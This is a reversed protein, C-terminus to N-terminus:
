TNMLKRQFVAPNGAWIENDPIDRTVVSGAGVISHCGITVGKLVISRAGLFAGEKILVPATKIYAEQNDLLRLDYDLPHFDTDFICCGSGILVNDEIMVSDFSTISSASIGVNNGIKISGKKGVFFSTKHFGSMPNAKKSSNIKVNDGISVCNLNHVIISGRIVPSKGIKVKLISYKIKKFISVFVFIKKLTKKVQMVVGEIGNM